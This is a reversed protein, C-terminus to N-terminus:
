CGEVEVIEGTAVVIKKPAYLAGNGDAINREIKDLARGPNVFSVGELVSLGYRWWDLGLYKEIIADSFRMRLTRAPVGGVITFPSVDATVVARSAIIAGHGINVGARIFAGEGIWVDNGITTAGFRSRVRSAHSRLSENLHDSNREYFGSLAPWDSHWGGQFLPHASFQEVPHETQGTVINAAISCFRGVSAINRFIANGGGLFTFAGIQGIDYIGARLECPPEFLFRQYQSHRLNVQAATAGLYIQLTDLKTRTEDRMIM